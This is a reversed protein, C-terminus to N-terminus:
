ASAAPIARRPPRFLRSSRWRRRLRAAGAPRRARGPRDLATPSSTWARRGPSGASWPLLPDRRERDCASASSSPASTPPAAPSDNGGRLTAPLAADTAPNWIDTDIGNVIGTLADRRARLLGDLGMGGEPTCIEDAYTPSVTTIADASLSAARSFASAAMISSATSPSPGPPLRLEAFSRRRSLPGPLRSQPHHAREEGALGASASISRRSGPRGTMPTSSPPVFSPVIGRASTRRPSPLARRLAALQGALGQRRPRSLSQRRPRYLHPADLVILDLGGARRRDPAGARRLSRRLRLADRAGDLAALVAPYGPVLTRM